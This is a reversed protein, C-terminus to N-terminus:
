VTRLGRTVGGSVHIRHTRPDFLLSLRPFIYARDCVNTSKAPSCHCVAYDRVALSCKHRPGDTQIGRRRARRIQEPYRNSAADSLLHTPRPRKAVPSSLNERCEACSRKTARPHERQNSRPASPQHTSIKELGVQSLSISVFFIRVEDRTNHRNHFLVHPTEM